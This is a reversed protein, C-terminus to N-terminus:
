LVKLVLEYTARGEAASVALAPFLFSARRSRMIGDSVDYCSAVSLFIANEERGSAVPVARAQVVSTRVAVVPARREVRLGVTVVQVEIRFSDIWRVVVIAEVSERNPSNLV